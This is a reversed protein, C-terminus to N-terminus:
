YMKLAHELQKDINRQPSDDINDLTHEPSPSIGKNEYNIGKMDTIKQISMTYRWGNQLTRTVFASFAGMTPQGAHTVHRQTLLALTFWEGASVTEYNTLLVIPKVYRTDAPRITMTIPASFDNKGPGNKTRVVLYDKPESIFRSAIYEMNYGFGGHSDRIDIILFETKSIYKIIDDIDKIWSENFFSEASFNTFHIYGIDKQTKEKNIIGYWIRENGTNKGSDILYEKKVKEFNFFDSSSYKSNEIKSQGFPTILSVHPDQLTNLMESCVKFLEMNTMDNSIHPLFKDRVQEWNVARQEFLSYLNRFDTWIDDFIQIPTIEKEQIWLLNCATLSFIVSLLMIKKKM